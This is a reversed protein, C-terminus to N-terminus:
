LHIRTNYSNHIYSNQWQSLLDQFYHCDLLPLERPVFFGEKSARTAAFSISFHLSSTLPVGAEAAESPKGDPGSGYAEAAKPAKGDPGARSVESPKGGLVGSVEAGTLGGSVDM